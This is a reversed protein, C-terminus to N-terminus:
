NKQFLRDLEVDFKVAPNRDTRIINKLMMPQGSLEKDKGDLLAWLFDGESVSGAYTGDECIVPVATYGSGRLRSAGEGFAMSNVLYVTEQKPILLQFINM